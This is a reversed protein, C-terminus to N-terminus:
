KELKQRKSMPLQIKTFHYLIFYINIQTFDSHTGKNKNLSNNGKLMEDDSNKTMNCLENVM